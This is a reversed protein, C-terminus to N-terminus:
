RGSKAPSKPPRPPTGFIGSGTLPCASLQRFACVLGFTLMTVGLIGATASVCVSHSAWMPELDLDASLQWIGFVGYLSLLVGGAIFASAVIQVSPSERRTPLPDLGSGISFAMTVLALGGAILAAMVVDTPRHWQGAVLALGLAGCYVFGLASTLARWARPVAMVLAITCCMAVLMHGSPASNAPNPRLPSFVPRELAPKLWRACALGVALYAVLQVLLAFRRRVAAIVLAALALVASIGKVVLSEHLPAEAASAAPIETSFGQWAITDYAQGANTRVGLVFALTAALLGIVGLIAAVIITSRRPRPRRLRSPAAPQAATTNTPTADTTNANTPAATVDANATSVTSADADPSAPAFAKDRKRKSVGAALAALRNSTRGYASSDDDDAAVVRSGGLMDSDPDAGFGSGSGDALLANLADNAGASPRTPDNFSLSPYSAADIDTFGGPTLPLARTADDLDSDNGDRAIETIRPRPSHISATEPVPASPAPAAPTESPAPSVSEAFGGPVPANPASERPAPAPVAEFGDTGNAAAAADDAGDYAVAGDNRSAGYAPTRAGDNLSAGYAPAPAYGDDDAAVPAAGFDYDAVPAAAASPAPAPPMPAAAHPASSPVASSGPAPAPAPSAPSPTGRVIGDDSAAFGGQEQDMDETM